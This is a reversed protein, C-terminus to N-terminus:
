RGAALDNGPRGVLLGVNAMQIKDNGTRFVNRKHFPGARCTPCSGCTHRAACCRCGAPIERLRVAVLQLKAIAMTRDQLGGRRTVVDAKQRRARRLNGATDKVELRLASQRASSSAPGANAPPLEVEVDVEVPPGPPPPPPVGWSTNRVDPVLQVTSPEQFLALLLISVIPPPPPPPPAEADFLAAAPPPPCYQKMVLRDSVPPLPTVM